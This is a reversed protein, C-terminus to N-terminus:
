SDIKSYRIIAECISNAILYSNVPYIFEKGLEIIITPMRTERLIPFSCGLNTGSNASLKLPNLHETVFNGLGMGPKSEYRYGRYHYVTFGYLLADIQFFICTDCQANNAQSILSKESLGTLFETNLNLDRMKRNLLHILVDSGGLNGIGLKFGSTSKLKLTFEV